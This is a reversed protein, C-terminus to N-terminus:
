KSALLLAKSKWLCVRPRQGTRTAFRVRLPEALHTKKCRTKSSDMADSIQGQSMGALPNRVPNRYHSRGKRVRTVSESDGASRSRREREVLAHGFHSRTITWM